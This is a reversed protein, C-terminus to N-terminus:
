REYNTAGKTGRAVRTINLCVTKNSRNVVRWAFPAVQKAELMPPVVDPPGTAGAADVDHRWRTRAELREAAGIWCVLAM